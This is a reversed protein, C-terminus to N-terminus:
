SQGRISIGTATLVHETREGSVEDPNKGGDKALHKVQEETFTRSALTGEVTVSKGRCDMPVAFAHDKMLIRASQTGDKVVMWCGKKQCVAEVEGTVLVPAEGAAASIAEALPKADALTFPSGFHGEGTAPGQPEAAEGGEPAPHPCGLEGGEPKKEGDVYICGAHDGEAAPAEAAAVREAEGEKAAGEKAAGEAPAAEAKPEAAAAKPAPAPTSANCAAAALALLWLASAHRLM